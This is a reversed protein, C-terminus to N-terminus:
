QKTALYVLRSLRRENSLTHVVDLFRQFADYSSDGEIKRLDAQHEARADHWNKSVQAINDTVDQVIPEGFGAARLLEEDKGLPTFVFLGMSGSRLMMEDRTIMGTVVIPDTFLAKGGPRLLRNWERLFELRNYIHNIADICIIADFSADDFPLPRSADTHQFVAQSSLGQDHAMKNATKIGEENIDIGTVHCGTTSAMFLSPGGSGCAVDLVRSSPNIGLWEFFQRYEDATLWGFQGIDEGFAQRRVESDITEALNAYASYFLEGDEQGHGNGKADM